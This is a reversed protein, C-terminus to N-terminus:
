WQGDLGKWTISNSSRKPCSIGASFVSAECGSSAPLLIIFVSVHPLTPVQYYLPVTGEAMLLPVVAGNTHTYQQSRLILSPFDQLFYFSLLRVLSIVAPCHM